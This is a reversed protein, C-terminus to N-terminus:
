SSACAALGFPVDDFAFVVDLFDLAVASLCVAEGATVVGASVFAEVVAALAFDVFVAEEFVADRREEEWGGRCSCM